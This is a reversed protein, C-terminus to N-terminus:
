DRPQSSERLSLKAVWELIRAQLIGLVTSRPPVCPEMFNCLTSFSQLLKAYMYLRQFSNLLGRVKVEKIKKILTYNIQLTNIEVTCSLSETICM